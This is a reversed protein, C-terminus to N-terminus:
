LGWAPDLAAYGARVSLSGKVRDPTKLVSASPDYSQIWAARTDFRMPNVIGDVIWCGM